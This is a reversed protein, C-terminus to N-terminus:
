VPERMYLKLLGEIAAWGMNKIARNSSGAIHCTTIINPAEALGKNPLPEDEYVDLAAGAIKGSILAQALATSNVIEGRATNILYSGPKMQALFEDNVMYRNREEMSVHLTVIDSEALLYDLSVFEAPTSVPFDILDNVLIRGAGLAAFKRAVVKGIHGYGIVGITLEPLERGPLKAWKLKKYSEVSQGINRILMIAFALTLEAVSDSNVGKQYSIEVQHRKASAFDFNDLGVGYKSVHRLCPLKEMVDSTFNETGLIVGDSDSLFEVLKAGELKDKENNLKINPFYRQVERVLYSDQCFTKSTIAIKPSGLAAHLRTKPLVDLSSLEGAANMLKIGRAWLLTKVKALWDKLDPFYYDYKSRDNQYPNTDDFYLKGNENVEADVGLVYIPNCGMWVALQIQIAMIDGAYICNELDFSFYEAHGKSTFRSNIPTVRQEAKNAFMWEINKRHVTQPIIWEVGKSGTILDKFEHFRDESQFCMYSIGYEEAVKGLQNCGIMVHGKLLSFDIQNLHPATGLCFVPKGAHRNRLSHIKQSTTYVYLPESSKETTEGNIHTDIHM